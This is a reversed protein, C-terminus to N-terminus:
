KESLQKIIPYYIDLLLHNAFGEDFRFTVARNEFARDLENECADLIKELEQVCHEASRTKINFLLEGLKPDYERINVPFFALKFFVEGAVCLRIAQVANKPSYGFEDLKQRRKGGLRGQREGKFLRRENHLYGKLSKYFRASDLLRERGSQIARFEETISQWKQNFLMEVVMTNTKRLLCLFHRIEYFFSDAAATKIDQHEFRDLGIVKNLETNAFVGRIDKDSDPAALGYSHSGGLYQCLIKL